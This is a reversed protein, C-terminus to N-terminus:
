DAKMDADFRALRAERQEVMSLERNRSKPFLTSSSSSTGGELRVGGGSAQRDQYVKTGVVGAVVLGVLIWLGMTSSSLEDGREAALEADTKAYDPRQINHQDWYRQSRPATAAPDKNNNNNGFWKVQTAQVVPLTTLVVLLLLQRSKTM